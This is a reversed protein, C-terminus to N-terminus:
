AGQGPSVAIFVCKIWLFASRERFPLIFDIRIGSADWAWFPFPIGLGWNGAAQPLGLRRM